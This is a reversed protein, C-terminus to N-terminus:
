QYCIQPLGAQFTGLNLCTWKAPCITPDVDCGTRTCFGTTSGPMVACYDTPCHCDTSATCSDGFMSSGANCSSDGPPAGDADTSAEGRAADRAPAKGDPSGADKPAPLCYGTVPDLLQGDDCLSSSPDQCATSSAGLALVAVLCLKM